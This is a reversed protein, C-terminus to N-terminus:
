GRISGMFILFVSFAITGEGSINEGERNVAWGFRKLAEYINERGILKNVAALDDEKGKLKVGDKGIKITCKGKSIFEICHRTIEATQKLYEKNMKYNAGTM